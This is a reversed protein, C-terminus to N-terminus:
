QSSPELRIEAERAYPGSELREWADDYGTASVDLEHLGPGLQTFRFSGSEDTVTRRKSASRTGGSHLSWTLTLAAGAVPEGRDDLVSGMLEHNGWDLVLDVEKEAGERLEIGQVELRPSSKTIFLLQGEPADEVVFDGRDDATVRVRNAPNQSPQLWLSFGPLPDGEADLMRGELRGTGLAELAIELLADRESFAIGHDTYPGYPGEPLVRISYDSGIEVDPISFSGDRDTVATYRVKLLASQLRIMEGEIPDGRETTLTGSVTTTDAASTLRVDFRNGPLGILDIGKLLIREETFGDLLFRFAYSGTRHAVLDLEYNGERDTRTESQPPAPIVRVDALPEERADTVTGHLRIRHNEVVVLDASRFGARATVRSSAYRDTAVSRILHDGAEVDRFEYSGDQRAHIRRERPDSAGPEELALASAVVGLGPVPKGEEDLVRGAISLGSGPAGESPDGRGEPELRAAISATSLAPGERERTRRDGPPLEEGAGSSVGM